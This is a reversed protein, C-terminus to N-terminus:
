SGQLVSIDQNIEAVVLNIDAISQEKTYGGRVFYVTYEFTHPSVGDKAHFAEISPIQSLVESFQSLMIDVTINQEGSSLNISFNRVSSDHDALLDQYLIWDIESLSEIEKIYNFEGGSHALYDPYCEIPTDEDLYELERM